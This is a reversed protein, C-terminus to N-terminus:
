RLYGLSRLAEVQDPALPVRSARNFKGALARHEKWIRHLMKMYKEVLDPREGHLSRFAHPDEQIDFVLLPAPRLRDRRTKRDDPRLDIRLSAGWRGDIVEISGFLHGDDVEFEDFVVPRQRWGSKGLLLPALSQGQVVKPGPLGALDLITPLMDIMSVPQAFRQGPAIKGPWVYIMPIRSKQAAFLPADWRPAKPDLLPLGAAVHGHDAAVIFLTNEWDGRKKLGEVLKGIARDQCAMGKDYLQRTTEFFLGRDVGSEEISEEYSRAPDWIIKELMDGFALRDRPRSSRRASVATALWPQHVDTPQFHVWYPEGPFAERLRWFEGHLDASSPRENTRWTDRIIDVGRDLGNMRGCYPNSTLVETIYGARHMREAMTVAQLPLPDSGSRSGGMVSSHLSTMFSPVSVKTRSSNSYANEFVAGEAALRELYPTTRREYGYVSMFEAAAGDIVYFIINPKETTSKGSLTRSARYAADLNKELHLPVDASLARDRSGPGGCGFAELFCLLVGFSWPRMTLTFGELAASLNM